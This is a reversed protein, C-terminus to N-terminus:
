VAFVMALVEFHEADTRPGWLSNKISIKFVALKNPGRVNGKKRNDRHIFNIMIRREDCKIRYYTLIGHRCGCYTRCRYTAGLTLKKIFNPISKTLKNELM